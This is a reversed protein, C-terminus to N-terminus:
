APGTDASLARSLAVFEDLSLVEARRTPDIGAEALAAAAREAGFLATLSNRVTKRRQSFAAKVVRDLFAPDVGGTRPAPLVDFRAVLSRVKPPPVFADPPV